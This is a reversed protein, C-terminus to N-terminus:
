RPCTASARPVAGAAPARGDPVLRPVGRAFERARLALFTSDATTRVTAGYIQEIQDGVYFQVAGVYSGRYDTRNIEVQEAGVQRSMVLAGSLLVYFCEAPAGETILEHGAPM